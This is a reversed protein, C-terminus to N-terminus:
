ATTQHKASQNTTSQGVENLGPTVEESNNSSKSTLVLVGSAISVTMGVAIASVGFWVSSAVIAIGGVALAAMLSERGTSTM